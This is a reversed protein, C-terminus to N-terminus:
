DGTQSDLPEIRNPMPQAGPTFKPDCERVVSRYFYYPDQNWGEEDHIVDNDMCWDLAAEVM